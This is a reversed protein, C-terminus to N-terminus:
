GREKYAAFSSGKSEQHPLSTDFLPNKNGFVGKVIQPKVKHAFNERRSSHLGM